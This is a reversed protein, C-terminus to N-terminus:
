FPWVGIQGFFVRKFPYVTGFSRNVRTLATRRLSATKFLSRLAYTHITLMPTAHALDIPLLCLKGHCARMSDSIANIPAEKRQREKKRQDAADKKGVNASLLAPPLALQNPM